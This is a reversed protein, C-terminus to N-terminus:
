PVKASVCRSWPSSSHWLSVFGPYSRTSRQLSRCMHLQHPLDLYSKKVLFGGAFSTRPGVQKKVCGSVNSQYCAACGHSRPLPSAHAKCLVRPQLDHMSIRWQDASMSNPMSYPQVAFPDKTAPSDPEEVTSYQKEQYLILCLQCCWVSACGAQAATDAAIAEM